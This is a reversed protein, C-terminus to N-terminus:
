SWVGGCGPVTYWCQWWVGATTVIDCSLMGVVINLFARGASASLHPSVFCRPRASHVRIVNAGVQWVMGWEDDTVPSCKIGLLEKDLLGRADNEVMDGVVHVTFFGTGVEAYLRLM